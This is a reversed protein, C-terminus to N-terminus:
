ALAKAYADADSKSVLEIDPDALVIGHEPTGENVSDVRGTVRNRFYVQRERNVVSPFKVASTSVAPDATGGRSAAAVAREIDAQYAAVVEAETRVGPAEASRLDRPLPASEDPRHQEAPDQGPDTLKAQLGPNPAEQFEQKPAGPVATRVAGGGSGSSDVAAEAVGAPKPKPTSAPTDQNRQTPPM